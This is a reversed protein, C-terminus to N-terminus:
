SLFRKEWHLCSYYHSKNRLGSFYSDNSYNDGNPSVIEIKLEKERGYLAGDVKRTFEFDQKNTIYRIKQDEIIGDFVLENILM